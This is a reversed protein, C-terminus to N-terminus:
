SDLHTDNKQREAKDRALISDPALAKSDAVVVEILTLGLVSHLLAVHGAALRFLLEGAVVVDAFHGERLLGRREIGLNCAPLATM